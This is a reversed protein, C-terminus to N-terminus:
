VEVPKKTRLQLNPQFQIIAYMAISSIWVLFKNVKKKQSAMVSKISVQIADMVTFSKTSKKTM